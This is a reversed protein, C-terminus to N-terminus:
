DELTKKMDTLITLAELPTCRNLDTGKLMTKIKTFTENEPFLTMQNCPIASEKSIASMKETLDGSVEHSKSLVDLIDKARNTISEKVGAISAVEIGFSRNSGGRAIKYLFTISSRNEQM